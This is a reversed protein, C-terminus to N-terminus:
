SVLTAIVRLKVLTRPAPSPGTKPRRGNCVYLSPGGKNRKRSVDNVVSCSESPHFFSTSSAVSSTLRRERPSRGSAQIAGGSSRSSTRYRAKHRRRCSKRYRHARPDGAPSRLLAAGHRARHRRGAVGRRFPRGKPVAREERAARQVALARRVDSRPCLGCEQM